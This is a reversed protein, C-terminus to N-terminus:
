DEQGSLKMGVRARQKERFHVLSGRVVSDKYIGDSKASINLKRSGETSVTLFLVMM